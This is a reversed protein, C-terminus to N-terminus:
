MNFLMKLDNLSLKAQQMNAGSLMASAMNKKKEQLDQVRQEITDCTVFRFFFIKKYVM